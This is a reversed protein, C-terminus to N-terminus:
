RLKLVALEKCKAEIMIDFRGQTIEIVRNFDEVSVYDAHKKDNIFERGTSLHCKPTNGKWTAIVEDLRNEVAYYSPLCKDHHFDVCMSINLQQCIFLVDDTNFSKDDNELVIKNQIDKSLRNFGDIFRQTAKNKDGKVGGVHLILTKNGLMNSLTNHYELGKITNQFVEERDSNIVHFQDPHMSIRINNDNVLKNIKNCLNIVDKDNWWEWICLEHTALPIMDSTMRYMLINNEINWQLIKYTTYLNDMTLGKIKKHLEQETSKSGSKVTITKFGGEKGLTQNICAYGIKFLEM